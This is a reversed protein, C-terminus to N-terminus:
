NLYLFHINSIYISGEEYKGLKISLASGTINLISSVIYTNGSSVEVTYDNDNNGLLKTGGTIEVGLTMTNSETSVVNNNNDRTIDFTNNSIEFFIAVRGRYLSSIENQDAFLHRIQQKANKYSNRKDIAAKDAEMTINGEKMSLSSYYKRDGGWGWGPKTTDGKIQKFEGNEMNTSDLSSPGLCYITAVDSAGDASIVMDTVGEKLAIITNTNSDFTAITEDEIKITPASTFEGLMKYSVVVNKGQDLSSDICLIFEKKDFTIERPLVELECYATRGDESTATVFTNGVTKSTIKGEGDITAIKDDNISWKIDAEESSLQFTNGIGVIKATKNSIKLGRKILPTKVSFTFSGQMYDGDIESNLLTFSLPNGNTLYAINKLESSSLTNTGNFVRSTFKSGDPFGVRVYAEKNEELGSVTIITELDFVDKNGLGYDNLEKKPFYRLSFQRSTNKNKVQLFAEDDMFYSEYFDPKDYEDYYCFFTDPNKNVVDKKGYEVFTFDNPADVVVKCTASKGMASVEIECEGKGKAYILGNNDVTAVSSNSTKFSYELTRNINNSVELQRERKGKFDIKVEPELSIRLDVVEITLSSSAELGTTTDIAKVLVKGEQKANVRGRTITIIDGEIGQNEGIKSIEFKIKVVSPADLMKLTYNEGTVLLLNKDQFRFDKAIQNSNDVQNPAFAGSVGLQAFSLVALGGLLTSVFISKFLKM